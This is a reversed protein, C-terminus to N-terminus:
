IGPLRFFGLVVNVIKNVWLKISRPSRIFSKVDQTPPFSNNGSKDHYPPTMVNKEVVVISDYFHVSQASKTFEDVKLRWTKSHHANLKDIFNKAYEIFTGIRKYGGGFDAWYSTHLDECLYVGNEKVHPFLEEFTVKQQKMTHGGDDILIDIPPIEQKIRNLFSRDSQSGIFIKTDDEEFQRCLPNIDVGYIKVRDGFYDRWMELSGGHSVGIELLVIDRDKFRAFHRDYIDFYHIWKHLLRGSNNRFYKELKNQQEKM